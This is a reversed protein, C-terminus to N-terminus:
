EKIAAHLIVPWAFIMVLFAAIVAIFTMGNITNRAGEMKEGSGFTIRLLIATLM